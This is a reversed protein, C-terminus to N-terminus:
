TVQSSVAAIQNQFSGLKEIADRTHHSRAQISTDHGAAARRMTGVTANERQIHKFPPQPNTAAAEWKL